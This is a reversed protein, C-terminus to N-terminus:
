NKDNTREGFSSVLESLTDFSYLCDGCLNRVSGSGDERIILMFETGFKKQLEKM